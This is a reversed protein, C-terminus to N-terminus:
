RTSLTGVARWGDRSDAASLGKLFDAEAYSCEVHHGGELDLALAERASRVTGTEGKTNQREQWRIWLFPPVQRPGTDPLYEDIPWPSGTCRTDYLRGLEEYLWRSGKFTVRPLGTEILFDRHQQLFVRFHDLEAALEALSYFPTREDLLYEYMRVRQALVSFDATQILQLAANPPLAELAAELLLFPFAHLAGALQNAELLMDPAFTGVLRELCRSIEPIREDPLGVHGALTAAHGVVAGISTSPWGTETTSSKSM